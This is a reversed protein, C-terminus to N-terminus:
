SPLDGHIPRDFRPQHMFPIPDYPMIWSWPASPKVVREEYSIKLAEAIALCHVQDGIKGDTILWAHNNPTTSNFMLCCILCVM